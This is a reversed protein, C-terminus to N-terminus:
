SAGKILIHYLTNMLLSYILGTNYLVPYSGPLPTIAPINVAPMGPLQIVSSPAQVSASNNGPLTSAPTAATNDALFYCHHYILRYM